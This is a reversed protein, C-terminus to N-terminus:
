HDTQYCGANVINDGAVFRYGGKPSNDDRGDRNEGHTKQYHCFFMHTLFQIRLGDNGVGITGLDTEIHRNDQQGATTNVRQKVNRVDIGDSSQSQGIKRKFFSPFTKLQCLTIFKTSAIPTM